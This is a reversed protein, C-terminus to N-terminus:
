HSRDRARVRLLGRSRHLAARHLRGRRATTAEDHRRDSLASHHIVSDIQIVLRLPAYYFDVRALWGTADAIDVQTEFAPFRGDMALQRFRRELNSDPHRESAPRDVLLQRMTTIGGRGRRALVQLLHHMEANNTL